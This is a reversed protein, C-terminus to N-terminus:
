PTLRLLSCKQRLLHKGTARAPLGFAAESGASTRLSSSWLLVTEVTAPDLFWEPAWINRALLGAEDRVGQMLRTFACDGM